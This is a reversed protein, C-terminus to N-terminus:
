SAPASIELAGAPEHRRRPGIVAIGDGSIVTVAGSAPTAGTGDIVAAGGM